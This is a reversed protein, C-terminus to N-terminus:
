DCAAWLAAAVPICHTLQKTKEERDIQILVEPM